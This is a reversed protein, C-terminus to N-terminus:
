SENKEGEREFFGIVATVSKRPSMLLTDSLTVGIRKECELLPIIKKQTDLPFDGYGPSFRTKCYFGDNEATKEIEGNVKDALEEVLATAVSDLIMARTIEGTREYRSVANEIQFGVTVAMVACKKAGSLHSNINEGSLILDTNVLRLGDDTKETDFIMYVSRPVALSLGEKITLDLQNEMEPTLAQGTYGLYRLAEKKNGELKIM